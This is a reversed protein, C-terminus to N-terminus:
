VRFNKKLEVSEIEATNIIFPNRGRMDVVPTRNLGAAPHPLIAASFRQFM